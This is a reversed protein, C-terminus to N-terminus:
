LEELEEGSREMINAALKDAVQIITVLPYLKQSTDFCRQDEYSNMNIGWAGMHWRIALMEDDSLAIGNCLLLIVSKEGHGMPFNKYSVKYGENDEWTGIATKKKKVTRFYIDSKCVDHLLSAIIVSEREVEKELGPEIAAMGEWVMLAAKCTNLSHQVLGGETNLHHNASAPATFFGMNELGELLDEVGERHTSRLLEIFEEKTTM